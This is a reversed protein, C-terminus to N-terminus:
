ARDNSSDIGNKEASVCDYYWHYWCRRCSRRRKHQETAEPIDSHTRQRDLFSCEEDSQQERRM